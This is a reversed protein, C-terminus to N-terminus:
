RDPRSPRGAATGYAIVADNITHWDTGLEDAVESVTRGYKGVQLTAWRAARSTMSMRPAAISRSSSPGRGTVCRPDPCQWRRKIWVLRTPRGFAPLDVLPVPPRDKIKAV